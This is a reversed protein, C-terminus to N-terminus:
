KVKKVYLFNIITQAQKETLHQTIMLYLENKLDDNKVTVLQKYLIERATM